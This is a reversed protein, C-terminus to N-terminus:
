AVGDGAGFLLAALTRLVLRADSTTSRSRVYELDLALKRPLVEGLYATEWDPGTLASEEKRYRLSAPSTMGPRVGLLERQSPTYRAVYRPDEPRPGVLGMEGRLVNILQPLEDIKTRRLVRGSRTVRADNAVTIGPGARDSGVTMSRFKFARFEAGGKGVRRARYFVPGPSDLKVWVAAVAFLPSLLLLGAAAAVVDFPRFSDRV